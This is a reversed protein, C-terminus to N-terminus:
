DLTAYGSLGVAVRLIERADSATIEGDYNMDGMLWPYDKKNELEVAIRLATRADEATVTKNCDIDGFTDGSFKVFRQEFPSFPNFIKGFDGLKAFVAWEAIGRSMLQACIKAAERGSSFGIPARLIYYPPNNNPNISYSAMYIRVSSIGPIGLVEPDLFNRHDSFLKEYETNEYSAKTKFIVEYEETSYVAFSTVSFSIILCVSLLIIFIKRM